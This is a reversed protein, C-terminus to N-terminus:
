EQNKPNEPAREWMKWVKDKDQSMKLGPNEEQVGPLQMAEYEKYTMRKSSESNGKGELAELAADIGTAEVNDDKRNTNAEVQPQSVVESKKSKGKPAAMALLAQRQALQAQTVKTSGAGKNGGKIKSSAADDAAELEEKEKKAALKADAKAEAEAKRGAKKLNGKDTEAGM